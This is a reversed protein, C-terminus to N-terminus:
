EQKEEQLHKNPSVEKSRLPLLRRNKKHYHRYVYLGIALCFVLIIIFLILSPTSWESDFSGPHSRYIPGWSGRSIM